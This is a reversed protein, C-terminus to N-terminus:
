DLFVEAYMDPDFGVVLQKGVWLSPARLNGSPGIIAKRLSELEEGGTLKGGRCSFELRKKGKVAHIKSAKLALAVGEDGVISAKKADVIEKAELEHEDM